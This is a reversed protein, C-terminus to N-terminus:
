SLSITCTKGPRRTAPRHGRSCEQALAWKRETHCAENRAYLTHGSVVGDGAMMAIDYDAAVRLVGEVFDAM